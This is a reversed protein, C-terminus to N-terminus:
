DGALLMCGGKMPIRAWTSFIAVVVPVGEASDTESVSDLCAEVSSRNVVRRRVFVTLPRATM